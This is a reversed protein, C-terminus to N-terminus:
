SFLPLRLFKFVKVRTLLFEHQIHQPFDEEPNNLIAKPSIVKRIAEPSLHVLNRKNTKLKLGFIEPSLKELKKQISVTTDTKKIGKNTYYKFLERIIADRIFYFRGLDTNLGYNRHNDAYTRYVVKKSNLHDKSLLTRWDRIVVPVRKTRKRDELSVRSILESYTKTIKPVVKLLKKASTTIPFEMVVDPIDRDEFSGEKKAYVRIDRGFDYQKYLGYEEDLVKEGSKRREEQDIEIVAPNGM